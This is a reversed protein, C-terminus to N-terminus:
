RVASKPLPALCRRIAALLSLLGPTDDLKPTWGILNAAQIRRFRLPIKVDELLAPALIGREAGENAEIRVWESNRSASSWLVVVCKAEDLAKEVIDDWTLGVPIERDWFVSWREKGLRAAISEAVRTDERAYSVFVEPGPPPKALEVAAPFSPPVMEGQATWAHLSHAVALSLERPNRFFAVLFRELLSDRFAKIRRTDADFFALPWPADEPVLFVLCPILAERAASLELETISVDRGPPIYGYRWAVLLIFVDSERVASLSRELLPFDSASWDEM